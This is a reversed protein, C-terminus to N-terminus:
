FPSTGCELGEDEDEDVVWSWVCVVVSWGGDM